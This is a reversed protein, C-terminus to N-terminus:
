YYIYGLHKNQSMSQNALITLEWLSSKKGAPVTDQLALWFFVENLIMSRKLVANSKFDNSLLM